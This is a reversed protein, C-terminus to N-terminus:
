ASSPMRTGRQDRPSPSTYLLCIKCFKRDVSIAVSDKVVQVDVTVVIADRVIDFSLCGGVVDRWAADTPSRRKDVGVAITQIVVKVGADNGTSIRQSTM